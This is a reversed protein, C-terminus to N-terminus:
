PGGGFWATRREAGAVSLEMHIHDEHGNAGAYPVFRAGPALGADWLSRNWIVRQIGIEEAHVVLWNAVEDGSLLSVALDLARGTGHVSMRGPPLAADCLDRCCYAAWNYIQTFRGTLYDLLDRTGPLLGGSCGPAPPSVCDSCRPGSWAPAETVEVQQLDGLALVEGPARWRESPDIAGSGGGCGLLLALALAAVGRARWTQAAMRLM